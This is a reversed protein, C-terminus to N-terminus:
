YAISLGLKAFISLNGVVSAFSRHFSRRSFSRRSNTCRAYLLHSDVGLSASDAEPHLTYASFSPGIQAACTASALCANYVSSSSRRCLRAFDAYDLIALCHASAKFNRKYGRNPGFAKEVGEAGQAEERKYARNPAFAKEINEDEERKVYGRNQGFAMETGMTGDQADKARKAYGRTFGMGGWQGETGEVVAPQSEDSQADDRKYGRGWGGGGWQGETGEVVQPSDDASTGAPADPEPRPNWM